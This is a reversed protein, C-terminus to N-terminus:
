RENEGARPQLQVVAGELLHPDNRRPQGAAGADRLGHHHPQGRPPHELHGDEQRERQAKDQRRDRGRHHDVAHKRHLLCPQPHGLADGAQHHRGGAKVVDDGDGAVGEEDAEGHGGPAGEGPVDRVPREVQDEAERAAERTAQQDADGLHPERAPVSAERDEDGPLQEHGEEHVKVERAGARQSGKDHAGGGHDLPLKAPRGKGAQAGVCM